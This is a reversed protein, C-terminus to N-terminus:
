YRAAEEARDDFWLCPSLTAIPATRRAPKKRAPTKRAPTKRADQRKTAM